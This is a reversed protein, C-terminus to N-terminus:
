KKCDGPTLYVISGYPKGRSIQQTGDANINNSGILTVKGGENGDVLETHANGDIIAVDGAKTEAASVKKWGQSELKSQVESVLNSHWDIMGAKQLIATVFNACCVDSSVAPDMPLDGSRKLESTNRGLYQGAISAAGGAGGCCTKEKQADGVGSKCQPSSSDKSCDTVTQGASAGAAALNSACDVLATPKGEGTLGDLPLISATRMLPQSGPRAPQSELDAVIRALVDRARASGDFSDELVRPEAGDRAELRFTAHSEAADLTAEFTAGRRARYTFAVIPAKSADYGHIITAAAGDAIGWSAVGIKARTTPSAEVVVHDISVRTSIEPEDQTSSCAIVLTATIM